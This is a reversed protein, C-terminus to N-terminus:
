SAVETKASKKVWEPRCMSAERNISANAFGAQIIGCDRLAELLARFKDWPMPVDIYLHGHGPTTSPVLRALIDFDLVPMHRGDDCLSGILNAEDRPCEKADTPFTRNSDGGTADMEASYFFLRTPLPESM